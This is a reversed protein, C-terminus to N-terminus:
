DLQLLVAECAAALIPDYEPNLVSDLDYAHQQLWEAQRGTLKIETDGRLLLALTLFFEEAEGDNAADAEGDITWALAAAQVADLTITDTIREVVPPLDSADLYSLLLMGRLHDVAADIQAPTGGTQLNHVLEIQADLEPDATDYEDEDDWDGDEIEADDMDQQCALAEDLIEANYEDRTM